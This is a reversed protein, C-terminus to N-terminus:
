TKVMRAICRKVRDRFENWIYLTAIYVWADNIRLARIVYIKVSGIDKCSLIEGDTKLHLRQDEARKAQYVM